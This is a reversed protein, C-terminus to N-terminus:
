RYYGGLDKRWSGGGGCQGAMGFDGAGPRGGLLFPQNQLHTKMAALTRNRLLALMKRTYPSATAGILRLRTDGAM